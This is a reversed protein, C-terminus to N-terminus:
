VTRATTVRGVISRLDRTLRGSHNGPGDLLRAVDSILNGLLRGSGRQATIAVTIPGNSCNDANVQLGLVNLNLPGVALNLVRTAGGTASQVSQAGGLNQTVQGLITNLGTLLNSNGLITNLQSATPLTPTTTGGTGSAPPNLLNALDGVLNGLLNGAGQQATIDLCIPSTDVKLGLLDLHIPDLRLHLVPVTGTTAGGTQAPSTLTLPTTFTHGALTGTATGVASIAGDAGQTVSTINLNTIQIPLSVPQSPRAPTALSHVIAAAHAHSMVLRDELQGDLSPRFGHKIRRSRRAASSADRRIAFPLITSLAM